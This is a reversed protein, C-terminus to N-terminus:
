SFVGLEHDEPFRGRRGMVSLSSLAATRLREWPESLQLTELSPLPEPVDDAVNDWVANFAHIAAVEDDSFVPGTIQPLSQPNVFDQWQEIVEAAVHAIPVSAQYALQEEFSSSLELVEIIRNRIRQALLKPTVQETM